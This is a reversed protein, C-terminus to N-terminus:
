RRRKRRRVAIVATIVIVVLFLAILPWLFYLIYSWGSITKQIHDWATVSEKEYLTFTFERGPLGSLRAAYRNEGEPSLAISSDILYPAKAPTILEIDLFGFGAWNAAPSLLYTYSYKPSVTKTRDMIGEAPYGVSVQRTTDAPFDVTYVLTIIRDSHVASLIDELIVFGAAASYRQLRSLCLNMLQTDSVADFNRSGAVNRMASVLYERPKVNHKRLKYHYSGASLTEGNSDYVDATYTLDEGLVLIELNEKEYIRASLSSNGDDSVSYGHFGSAALLTKEPDTHFSLKVDLSRGAGADLEFRYLAADQNMDFGTLSLETNSIDGIGGYSFGGSGDQVTIENPDVFIQCALAEGDASISIDDASLATLSTVFPFAMQVSLADSTPNKMEYRAKVRAAPAYGSGYRFDESFDFTLYEGSVIIPSNEEVALVESYPYAEWYSPAANALAPLAGASFYLLCFIFSFLRKM